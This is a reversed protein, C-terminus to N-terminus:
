IECHIDFFFLFISLFIYEIFNVEIIKHQFKQHVILRDTSDQLKNDITLLQQFSEIIESNQSKPNSTFSIVSNFFDKLGKEFEDISHLIEDRIAVKSAM